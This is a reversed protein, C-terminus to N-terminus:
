EGGRMITFKETDKTYTIKRLPNVEYVYKTHLYYEGDPLEAPIPVIVRMKKCGKHANTITPTTAYAFNNIFSRSITAPLDVYKCYDSTFILSEGARVIKNEIPFIEDNWEIIKYPYVLLCIIYLLIIFLIGNLLLLLKQTNNM